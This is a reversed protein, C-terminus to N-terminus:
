EGVDAISALGIMRKALDPNATQLSRNQLSRSMEGICNSLRTTVWEPSYCGAGMSRM